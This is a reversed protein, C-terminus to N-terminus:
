MCGALNNYECQWSFTCSIGTPLHCTNCKRNAPDIDGFPNEGNKNFYDDYYGSRRGDCWSDNRQNYCM